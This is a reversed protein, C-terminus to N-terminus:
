ARPYFAPVFKSAFTSLKSTLLLIIFNTKPQTLSSDNTDYKVLEKGPFRLPVPM